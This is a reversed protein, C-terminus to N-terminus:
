FDSETVFKKLLGEKEEGSLAGIRATLESINDTTVNVKPDSTETGVATKKISPRWTTNNPITPPTSPFTPCDNGMHGQGRCRFCRGEKRMKEREQPTLKPPYKTISSAGPVNDQFANVEMSRARGSRAGQSGRGPQGEERRPKSWSTKEEQRELWIMHQKVAAKQLAALNKPQTSLYSIRDVLGRPLGKQYYKMLAKDNYGTDDAYRKFQSNYKDIDALTGEMKIHEIKTQAQTEQASPKFDRLFERKVERLTWSKGKTGPKSASPDEDTSTYEEDSDSFDDEEEFVKVMMNHAWRKAEEGSFLTLFFSIKEEKTPYVQDNLRLYNNFEAMWDKTQNRDGTFKEPKVGREKTTTNPFVSSQADDDPPAADQPAQTGGVAATASAPNESMRLAAHISHFDIPLSPNVSIPEQVASPTSDTPSRNLPTQSEPPPENNPNPEHSPTPSPTTTPDPNETTPESPLSQFLLVPEIGVTQEEVSLPRNNISLRNPCPHTTCFEWRNEHSFYCDQQNQPFHAHPRRLCVIHPSSTRDNETEPFLHDWQEGSIDEWSVLSRYYNTVRPVRTQLYEHYEEQCFESIDSDEYDAHSFWYPLTTDGLQILYCTDAIAVYCPSTNEPSIKIRLYESVTVEGSTWSRKNLIIWYDNFAIAHERVTTKLEELYNVFRKSEEIPFPYLPPPRTRLNDLLPEFNLALTNILSKQVPNTQSTPTLYDM